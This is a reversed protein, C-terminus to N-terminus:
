DAVRTNKALQLFKYLPIPKVALRLGRLLEAEDKGFCQFM